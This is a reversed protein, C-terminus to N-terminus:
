KGASSDTTECSFTGRIRYYFLISPYLNFWLALCVEKLVAYRRAIAVVQKEAVTLSIDHDEQLVRQEEVTMNREQRISDAPNLTSRLSGISDTQLPNAATNMRRRAKQALNSAYEVGKYPLVSSACSPTTTSDDDQQETPTKDGGLISTSDFAGLLQLVSAVVGRYVLLSPVSPHLTLLFTM